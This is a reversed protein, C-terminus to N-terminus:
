CFDRIAPKVIANCVYLCVTSDLVKEKLDKFMIFIKCPKPTKIVVMNYPM